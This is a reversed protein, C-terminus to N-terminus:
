TKKIKKDLVNQGVSFLPKRHAIEIAYIPYHHYLSLCLYFHCVYFLKGKCDLMGELLLIMSLSNQCCLKVALSCNMCDKHM